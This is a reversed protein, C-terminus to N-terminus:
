SSRSGPNAPVNVLFGLDHDTEFPLTVVGLEGFLELTINEIFYKYLQIDASTRSDILQEFQDICITLIFFQDYPLSIDIAKFHARLEDEDTIEEQIIHQLMQKKALLLYKKAKHDAEMMRSAKTRDHILRNEVRGLCSKLDDEAVPKLLYAFAGQELATKAYEFSDYSSVVVFIPPSGSKKVEQLLHLGDMRPMRVDAFIVDPKSMEIADLAEIGDAAKEVLSYGLEKFDYELSDRTLKEDEVILIKM